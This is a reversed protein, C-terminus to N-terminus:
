TGPQLEGLHYQLLRNQLVLGYRANVLASAAGVQSARAQTLEVLTGAGVDYRRQATELALEASRLQLEAVDLQQEALALDLYATQVETAVTQQTNELGIQANEVDLRARERTIGTTSDLLPVSVGLQLIGGRQQDLQDFFGVQNTSIFDAGYGVTLSLTPWRSSDAIRVGQQASNVSLEAAALDPRQAFARASLEEPDLDAARMTVPMDEPAAFEYEGFPDLQLTQILNMRAVLLGREAQVVALEAGATLAQQQYLDSIPRRGADVFAQIQSDLEQESRLNEQQVLVQEQAELVTLFDSNVNYTVSQRARSLDQVGGQEDIQAQEIGAFTSYINSIEVSTSLGASVSADREIGSAYPTAGVTSLRLDPLLERQQQRVGLTGLRASNEAQQVTPNQELAIEIAEGLTVTQPGEQATAPSAGLVLWGALAPGLATASMSRHKWM